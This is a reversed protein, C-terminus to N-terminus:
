EGLARDLARPNYGRIITGGVDIVPVGRSGGSKRLMEELADRSRGVDKVTFKVGRRELYRRAKKCYPCWSTSYLVVPGGRAGSAPQRKDDRRYKDADVHYKELLDDVPSAQYIAYSGGLPHHARRRYKRPVKSIDDVYNVVGRDDTYKYVGMMPRPRHMRITGASGEAVEGEDGAAPGAREPQRYGSATITEEGDDFYDSIEDCAVLCALGLVLVPWHVGSWFPQARGPM